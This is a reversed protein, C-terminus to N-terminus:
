QLADLVACGDFEPMVLDLIIADLRHRDLERLAARGALLGVADIGIATLTARMPDLAVPDDDIVMVNTPSTAPWRFRAMATVIEDTRIPKRLVDTITRPPLMSM